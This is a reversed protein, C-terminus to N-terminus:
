KLLVVVALTAALLPVLIFIAAKIAMFRVAKGADGSPKQAEGM